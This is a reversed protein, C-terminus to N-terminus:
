VQLNRHEVKLCRDQIVLKGAAQVQAAAADNVIGQQLWIARLQPLHTLAEDVVPGVQESRRFVDVIDVVLDEPLDALSARITEGFAAQGALGPNIAIVRYGAAALYAAVYHSPREPNDSYGVVAITRATSLLQRIEAPSASLTM